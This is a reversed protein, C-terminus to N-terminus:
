GDDCAKCFVVIRKLGKGWAMIGCLSNYPLSKLDYFNIQNIGDEMENM